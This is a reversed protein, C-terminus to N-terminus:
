FFMEDQFFCKGEQGGSSDCSFIRERGHLLFQETSMGLAKAAEDPNSSSFLNLFM